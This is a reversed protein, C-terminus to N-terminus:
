NNVKDLSDYEYQLYTNLMKGVHERWGTLDIGVEKLFVYAYTWAKMEANIRYASNLYWENYDLQDLSYDKLHGIEHALSYLAYSTTSLPAYITMTDKNFRTKQNNDLEVKAGFEKAFIVLQNLKDYTELM